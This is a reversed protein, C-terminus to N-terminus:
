ANNLVTTYTTCKDVQLPVNVCVKFKIRSGKTGFANPDTSNEYFNKNCQGWNDNGGFFECRGSRYTAWRGSSRPLQNIWQVYVSYGDKAHDKVFFYDGHKKFCGKALSIGRWVDLCVDSSGWNTRSAAENYEEDVAMVAQQMPRASSGGEIEVTSAPVASGVMFAMSATITSIMAILRNKRM